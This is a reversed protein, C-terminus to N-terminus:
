ENTEKKDKKYFDTDSDWKFLNKCHMFGSFNMHLEERGVSVRWEFPLYPEIPKQDKGLLARVANKKFYREAYEAETEKALRVAYSNEYSIPTGLHAMEEEDAIAYAATQAFVTNYLGNSTKFDGVCLKGDVRAKFDMQGVYQHERSYVIKESEIFEVDHQAIFELFSNIGLLTEKEEPLTPADEYGERGLKHKIFYECWDHTKKGIEGAEEKKENHLVMAKAIHEPTVAEGKEILDLLHIGMTETAWSVLPASKDKIGLYTTVGKMTADVLGFKPDTVKYRHSNPYFKVTVEGGYMTFEKVETKAM